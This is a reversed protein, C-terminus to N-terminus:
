KRQFRLISLGERGAKRSLVVESKLTFTSAMHAMLEEPKNERIVVLYFFGRPSLIENILPLARDIVQRGDIGGAWAAEISHSGVEESPTVVYPPNFLIVDVSQHLRERVALTLDTLVTDIPVANKFGTELTASAALSNVDTSLYLSSHRGLLTALFTIVCGSGSGIELCVAPDLAKLLPLDAELADLFLFTDEAPEYVNRYHSYNLHSLDPTPHHSAM